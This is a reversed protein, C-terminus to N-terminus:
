LAFLRPRRRPVGKVGQPTLLPAALETAAARAAEWVRAVEGPPTAGLFVLTVHLMEDPVPRLEPRGGTAEDRWRAVEARAGEPLDLAM